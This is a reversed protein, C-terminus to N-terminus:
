VNCKITLLILTTYHHLGMFGKSAVRECVGPQFVAPNMPSSCLFMAPTGTMSTSSSNGHAAISRKEENGRLSKMSPRVEQSSSSRKESNGLFKELRIKFPPDRNRIRKRQLLRKRFRRSKHSSGKKVFHRSCRKEIRRKWGTGTLRNKPRLQHSKNVCSGSFQPKM